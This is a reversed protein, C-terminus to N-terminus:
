NLYQALKLESSPALSLEFIPVIHLYLNRMFNSIKVTGNVHFVQIYNIKSQQSSFNTHPPEKDTGDAPRKEYNDFINRLYLERLPRSM